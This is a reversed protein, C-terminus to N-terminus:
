TNDISALHYLRKCVFYQRFDRATFYEWLTTMNGCCWLINSWVSENFCHRWCTGACFCQSFSQLSQDVSLLSAQLVFSIRCKKTIEKESDHCRKKTKWSERRYYTIRRGYTLVNNDQTTRLSLASFSLFGFLCCRQQMLEVVFFFVCCM